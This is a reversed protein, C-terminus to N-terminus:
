CNSSWDQDVHFSGIQYTKHAFYDGAMVTFALAQNVKDELYGNAWLSVDATYEGSMLALKPITCRAEGTTGDFALEQGPSENTLLAVIRDMNDRISFRAVLKEQVPEKSAISFVISAPRGTSPPRGADDGITLDTIRLNGKGSRDKRSGIGSVTAQTTSALYSSVVESAPGDLKMQGSELWIARTCLSQIAEMQHSVFLVTRGESAVTNMRGLCKRQFEADGVALVEDIVLIEPDLHAAVAFGLRVRMGSSYRKVPTDLFEEVGSFAVIEDFKRGVERHTMGLLVGNMYINERGTLEPHFGTGVELLSGIRGRVRIEGEDPTTIRSLLKLLTSKGAGNRGVIGLVEGEKLEFSIHRLAWFGKDDEQADAARKRSFLGAVSDRLTQYPAMGGLRYQKGVDDLRLISATM